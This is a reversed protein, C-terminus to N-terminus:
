LRRARARSWKTLRGCSPPPLCRGFVIGSVRIGAPWASAGLFSPARFTRASLMELPLAFTRDEGELLLQIEVHELARRQAARLVVVGVASVVGGIAGAINSIQGIIEFFPSEFM